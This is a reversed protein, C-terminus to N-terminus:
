ANFGVYIGVALAVNLLALGALRSSPWRLIVPVHGFRSDWESDRRAYVALAAGVVALGVSVWVSRPTYRQGTNAVHVGWAVGFGFGAGVTILTKAIARGARTELARELGHLGAELVVEFLVQVILEVLAELIVDV